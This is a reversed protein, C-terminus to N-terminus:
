PSRASRPPSSATGATRRSRTRSSSLLGTAAVLRMDAGAFPWGIGAFHRAALVSVTIAFAGVALNLALKGRPSRCVNILGRM